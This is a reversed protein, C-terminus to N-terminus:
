QLNQVCFFDVQNRFVLMVWGELALPRIMLVHKGAGIPIDFHSSSQPPLREKDCTWLTLKKHVAIGIM